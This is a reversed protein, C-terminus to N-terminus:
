FIPTVINRINRLIQLLNHKKLIAIRLRLIRNAM